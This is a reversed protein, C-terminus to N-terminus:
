EGHSNNTLQRESSCELALNSPKVLALLPVTTRICLELLDPTAAATTATPNPVYRQSEDLESDLAPPGVPQVCQTAIFTSVDFVCVCVTM